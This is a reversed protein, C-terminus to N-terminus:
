SDDGGGGLRRQHAAVEESLSELARQVPTIDIRNLSVRKQLAELQKWIAAVGKLARSSIEHDEKGKAQAVNVATSIQNLNNGIRNIEALFAPDVPPARLRRRQNTARALLEERAWRSLTTGEPVAAEMAVLESATVRFRITHTRTEKPTM